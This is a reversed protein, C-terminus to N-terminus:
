RQQLPGSTERETRKRIVVVVCHAGNLSAGHLGDQSRQASVSGVYMDLNRSASRQMLHDCTVSSEDACTGTTKNSIGQASNQGRHIRVARICAHLLMATAHQTEERVDRIYQSYQLPDLTVSDRRDNSRKACVGGIFDHLLEAESGRAQQAGSAGGDRDCCTASARKLGTHCRQACIGSEEDHLHSAATRQLADQPRMRAKLRGGAGGASDLHAHSRHPQTISVRRRYM